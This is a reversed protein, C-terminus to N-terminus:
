KVKVKLRLGICNYIWDQKFGYRAATRAYRGTNIWSGGRQVKDKIKV